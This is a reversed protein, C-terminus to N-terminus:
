EFNWVKHHICINAIDYAEYGEYMCLYILYSFSILDIKGVSIVNEKGSLFCDVTYATFNRMLIFSVRTYYM